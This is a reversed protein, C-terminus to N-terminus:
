DEHAHREADKQMLANIHAAFDAPPEVGTQFPASGCSLCVPNYGEDACYAGPGDTIVCPATDTPKHPCDITTNM